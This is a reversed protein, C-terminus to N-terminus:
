LSQREIDVKYPFLEGSPANGRDPFRLVHDDPRTGAAARDGKIQFPLSFLHQNQLSAGVHRSCAVVKEGHRHEVLVPEQSRLLAHSHGPRQEVTTVRPVAALCRSGNFAGPISACLRRNLLGRDPGAGAPPCAAM